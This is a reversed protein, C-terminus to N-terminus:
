SRFRERQRRASLFEAIVPVAMLSWALLFLPTNFRQPLLSRLAEVGEDAIAIADAMFVYLALVIGVCGVMVPWVRRTKAIPEPENGTVLTGWLIMLVAISVPSWVPGWWPLPLLFLIDWDVLSAPWGTMVKLFAYYFIDWVGFAVGM